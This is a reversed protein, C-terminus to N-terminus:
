TPEQTKLIERGLRGSGSGVSYFWGHKHDSLQHLDGLVVLVPGLQTHISVLLCVDIM